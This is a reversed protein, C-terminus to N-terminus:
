FRYRAGVGFRGVNRDDSGMLRFMRLDADLWVHSMLRIGVGGGLTLALDVESTSVPQTVLRYDPPILIGIPRTALPLPSPYKLDATLRVSAVGGGAIFYPELRPTTTPITVRVNTSFIVMRGCTNTYSPGPYIQLIANANGAALTSYNQVTVGPYSSRITPVGTTELELGVVDSLRYGFAGAFSFQTRSDLNTASVSGAVTAGRDDDAWVATTLTLSLMVMLAAIRLMM